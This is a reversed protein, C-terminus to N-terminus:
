KRKAKKFRKLPYGKKRLWERCNEVRSLPIGLIVGVDRPCLAANWVDVFRAIDAPNSLAPTRSAVRGSM